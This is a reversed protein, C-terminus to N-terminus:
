LDVWEGLEDLDRGRLFSRVVSWAHDVNLGAEGAFDATEDMVPVEVVEGAVSGDGELLAMAEPSTLAQVVAVSGRFGVTLVPFEDTRRVELYGHGRARLAAFRDDLAVLDSRTEVPDFRGSVPSTAAWVAEVVERGGDEAGEMM